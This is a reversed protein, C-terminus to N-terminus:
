PAVEEMKRQNGRDRIVLNEEDDHEIIAPSTGFTV